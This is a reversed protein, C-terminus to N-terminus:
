KECEAEKNRSRKGVEWGGIDLCVGVEDSKIQVKGKREM